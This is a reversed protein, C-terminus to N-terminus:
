GQDTHYKIEEQAFNRVEPRVAATTATQSQRVSAVDVHTHGAVFTVDQITVQAFAAAPALALIAGALISKKM